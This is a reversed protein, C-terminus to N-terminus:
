RSRKRSDGGHIGVYGADGGSGRYGGQGGARPAGARQLVADCNLVLSLLAFRSRDAATTSAAAAAGGDKLGLYLDRWMEKVDAYRHSGGAVERGTLPDKVALKGPRAFPGAATALSASAVVGGQAVAVADTDLNWDNGYRRLFSFLMHGAHDVLGGAGEEAQLHAIAMNALSWSGLGGTSVDGLNSQKLISKLVLVLPRLVPYDQQWSQLFNAASVGSADNISVDLELGSTLELKLVPIRAHAILKSSRVSMRKYAVREVKRLHSAVMQKGARDYGGGAGDTPQCLGTIMIDLDSSHLALGARGSGFLIATIGRRTQGLSYDVVRQLETLAAQRQQEEHRSPQAQEAFRTIDASLADLWPSAADGGAGLLDQQPDYCQPPIQQQAEATRDHDARARKSPRNNPTSARM